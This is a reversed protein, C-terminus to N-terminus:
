NVPQVVIRSEGSVFVTNGDPTEAMTIAFYHGTTSNPADTLTVTKLLPYIAGAQLTGNLNYIDLRPGGGVVDDRYVYARSSDRSALVVGQGAPLHGTLSLAGSYVDVNQLIVRSANGSVTVANLNFNVNSNTISGDLTNVIKVEPAPSLGNSGAYLKSGDASGAVIGNYLSGDFGGTNQKLEHSRIDYLYSSTYGSCGALNTIVFAKGDNGISLSDMYGGCFTDSFTNRPQAIFPGSTLSIDNM